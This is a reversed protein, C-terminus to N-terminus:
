NSSAIPHGEELLVFCKIFGIVLDPIGHYVIEFFNIGETGPHVVPKHLISLGHFSSGKYFGGGQAAGSEPEAAESKLGTVQATLLVQGNQVGVIHVAMDIGERCSM